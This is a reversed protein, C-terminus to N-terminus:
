GLRNPGEDPLTGGRPQFVLLPVREDLREFDVAVSLRIAVECRPREVISTMLQLGAPTDVPVAGGCDIPADTM